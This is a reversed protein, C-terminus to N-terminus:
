EFNSSTRDAEIGGECKKPLDYKIYSQSEISQGQQSVMFGLFKGPSVGFAFKTPNLRMQYKRLADFTEKLDELHSVAKRSKVLMDDMYVEM